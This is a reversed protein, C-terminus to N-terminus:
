AAKGDIADPDGLRKRRRDLESAVRRGASLLLGSRLLPMLGPGRRLVLLAAVALVAVLPNVVYRQVVAIGDDATHLRADLSRLSRSLKARQQSSRQLLEARRKALVV